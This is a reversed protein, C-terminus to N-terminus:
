QLWLPVVVVRSPRNPSVPALEGFVPEPPTWRWGLYRRIALEGRNSSVVTALEGDALRAVAAVHGPGPDIPLFPAWAIQEGASAASGVTTRVPGRAPLQIQHTQSTMASALNMGQASPVVLHVRKHGTATLVPRDSTAQGLPLFPLLASETLPNIPPHSDDPLFRTHFLNGTGAEALIVDVTGDGYTAASRPGFMAQSIRFPAAVPQMPTLQGDRMRSRLLRGDFDIAFIEYQGSGTDVLAPASAVNNGLGVVGSWSGRHYRSYYLSGDRALAIVDIRDRSGVAAFDGFPSPGFPLDGVQTSTQTLYNVAHKIRGTTTMFLLDIRGVHTTLAAPDSWPATAQDSLHFRTRREDGLVASWPRFLSDGVMVAMARDNVAIAPRGLYREHDVDQHGRWHLSGATGGPFGAWSPHLNFLVRSSQNSSRRGAFYIQGAASSVLSFQPAIRGEAPTGFFQTNTSEWGQWSSGIIRNFHLLRDSGRVALMASNPGTAALSPPGDANHGIVYEPYLGADTSGVGPLLLQTAPTVIRYRIDTATDVYAVAIRWDDLAAAAPAHKLNSAIQFSQAWLGSELDFVAGRANGGADWTLLLMKQGVRVLTPDRLGGASHNNVSGINAPPSWVGNRRRLHFLYGNNRVAVIEVQGPATTLMAPRQDVRYRDLEGDDSTHWEDTWRGGRWRTYALDGDATVAALDLLGPASSTLVPDGGAPERIPVALADAFGPAARRLHHLRGDEGRAVIDVGADAYELLPRYAVSLEANGQATRALFLRPIAFYEFQLRHNELRAQNLNRHMLSRIGTKVQQPAASLVIVNARSVQPRVVLEITAADRYAHTLRFGGEIVMDQASISVDNHGESTGSGEFIDIFFGVVDGLVDDSVIRHHLRGHISAAVRLRFRIKQTGADYSFTPPELIGLTLRSVRTIRVTSGSQGSALRTQRNIWGELQQDLQSALRELSIQYFANEVFELRQMKRLMELTNSSSLEFRPGSVTNFRVDFLQNGLDNFLSGASQDSRMNAALASVESETLYLNSACGALLSAAAIPLIATRRTREGANM